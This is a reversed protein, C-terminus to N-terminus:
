GVKPMSKPMSKVTELGLSELAEGMKEAFLMMLKARLPDYKEGQICPCAEYFSGFESAAKFMAQTMLHPTLEMVADKCADGLLCLSLALQREHENLPLDTRTLATLKSAGEIAALARVRAYQLYPATDGKLAVATSLDFKVASTRNRSLDGYKLAGIGMPIAVADIEEKSAEEAKLKSVKRAAEIAEDVLESLPMTGGTRSKFPLGDAGLMMGFPVHIAQGKKILGAKEGLSFLAQFHSAQRDDTVYLLMRGTQGRLALAALDTGGYLLGGGHTKSKELPLPTKGGLYAVGQDSSVVLGQDLLKAILPGAEDQYASEGIADEPRLGIGLLEYVSSLEKLTSERIQKWASYAPEQRAQMQATTKRARQGFDGQQTSENKLRLSGRQYVGELEALGIGKLSIKEDKSQEIIIGFPTGWDGLHNVREVDAGCAEFMRCLADGIVTSRLHGVHMRKACNPSSYDVLVKVTPIKPFIGKRSVGELLFSDELKLNIFGTGQSEEAKAIGKLEKNLAEALVKAREAPAEGVSKPLAFASRTQLDFEKMMAPDLSAASPNAGLEKLCTALASRIQADFRQNIISTKEDPSM